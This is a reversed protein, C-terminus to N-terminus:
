QAEPEPGAVQGDNHDFLAVLSVGLARAIRTLVMLSPNVRGREIEGLGAANIGAAHALADITVKPLGAARAETNRQHRLARVRQGLDVIVRREDASLHGLRRERALSPTVSQGRKKEPMVRRLVSPVFAHSDLPVQYLVSRGDTEFEGDSHIVRFSTGHTM